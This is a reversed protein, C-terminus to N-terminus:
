YSMNPSTLHSDIKLCDDIRRSNQATNICIQKLAATLNKLQEAHQDASQSLLREMLQQQHEQKVKVTLVDERTETLQSPILGWNVAFIAAITVAAPIGTLNAIDKIDAVSPVM